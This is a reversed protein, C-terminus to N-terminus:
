MRAEFRHRYYDFVVATVIVCGTVIRKTSEQAGLTFLGVGLVAIILVGFFSKVVSGRGGMLSTGGIVVAAIAQLEFGSGANPDAAGLRACQIAGAVAAGVGSLAFVAIVIASVRIGSLRAAEANSGMALAHRGFLTHSLVVQGAVVIAFAAFFPLSLGFVHVEALREVPRGIYQTQSHTLLYAAGRGIELMGLTVIFSPLRWVVAVAGNVLGCVLGTALCALFALPLPWHFQTLCVGLVAGSVALVSGVSLDIGGVVLVFTMGAAVGMTEPIQNAINQFTSATLFHNTTLGFIVILVALVLGLGVYDALSYATSKLSYATPLALYRVEDKM